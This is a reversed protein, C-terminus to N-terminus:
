KNSSHIKRGDSVKLLAHTNFCDIWNKLCLHKVHQLLSAPQCSNEFTLWKWVQFPPRITDSVDQIQSSAKQLRHSYAAPIMKFSENSTKIAPPPNFLKNRSSIWKYLKSAKFGRATATTMSGMWLTLPFTTMSAKRRILGCSSRRPCTPLLIM